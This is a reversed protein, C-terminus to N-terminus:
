TGTMCGPVKAADVGSLGASMMPEEPWMTVKASNSAAAFRRLWSSCEAPRRGPSWMAIQM